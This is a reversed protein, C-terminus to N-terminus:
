KVYDVYASLITVNIPIRARDPSNLPNFLFIIIRIVKPKMKSSNPNSNNDNIKEEVDFVVFIINLM